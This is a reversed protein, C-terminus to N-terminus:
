YLVPKYNKSLLLGNEAKIILYTPALVLDAGVYQVNNNEERSVPNILLCSLRKDEPKLYIMKPM